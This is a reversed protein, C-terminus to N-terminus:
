IKEIRFYEKIKPEIEKLIDLVGNQTDSDESKLLIFIRNRFETVLEKKLESNDEGELFKLQNKLDKTQPEIKSMFDQIKKRIIIPKEKLAQEAKRDMIERNWDFYISTLWPAVIMVGSLLSLAAGIVDDHSFNEWNEFRKLHKM